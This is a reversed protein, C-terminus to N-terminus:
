CALFAECGEMGASPHDDAMCQEYCAVTGDDIPFSLGLWLDKPSWAGIWAAASLEASWGALM